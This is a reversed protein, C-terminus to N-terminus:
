PGAPQFGPLLLKLPLLLRPLFLLPNPALLTELMLLSNATQLGFQAVRLPNRSNSSAGAVPNLAAAKDLIIKVPPPFFTYRGRGSIYDKLNLVSSYKDTKTASPILVRIQSVPRMTPRDFRM